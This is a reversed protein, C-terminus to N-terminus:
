PTKADNERIRQGLQKEYEEASIEGRDRQGRLTQEFKFMDLRDVVQEARERSYGRSEFFQVLEDQTARHQRLETVRDSYYDSESSSALLQEESRLQHERYRDYDSLAMVAQENDTLPRLLDASAQQLVPDPDLLTPILGDVIWPPRPELIRIAQIARLRKSPDASARDLSLRLLEPVIRSDQISNLADFLREIKNINLPIDSEVQWNLARGVGMADASESMKTITANRWTEGGNTSFQPSVALTDEPLGTYRVEIDEDLVGRSRRAFYHDKLYFDQTMTIAGPDRDTARARIRVPFSRLEPIDFDAYWRLNGQYEREALNEASGSLTAREWSIGRDKSFEVTLSVPDRERDTVVYQLEVLDRENVGVIRVSPPENNDVYFPETATWQGLRHPLSTSIRFQVNDADYGPLDAASDWVIVVSDPPLNIELDAPQVNASIWNRGGNLSYQFVFNDIERSASTPYGFGMEVQGSVEIEIDQLIVKYPDVSIPLAHPIGNPEGKGEDSPTLRFSLAASELPINDLATHWELHGTYADSQLDELMGVTSAPQWSKGNDLSFEPSLTLADFEEDYLVYDVTMVGDPNIRYDSIEVRPPIMAPPGAMQYTRTHSWSNSNPTGEVVRFLVESVGEDGSGRVWEMITDVAKPDGIKGLAEVAELRFHSDSDVIAQLAPVARRDQLNGLIQIARRTYPRNERIVRILAPTSRPDLLMGLGELAEYEAPGDNLMERVLLMTAEPRGTKGLALAAKGAQEGGEDLYQVLAAWGEPHGEAWAQQATEVQSIGGGLGLCQVQLLSCGLLLLSLLHIRM